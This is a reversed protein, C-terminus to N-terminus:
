GEKLMNLAANLDDGQYLITNERYPRSHIVVWEEAQEAWYLWNGSVEVRSHTEKLLKELLGEVTM